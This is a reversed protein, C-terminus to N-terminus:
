LHLGCSKSISQIPIHSPFNFIIGLFRDQAAILISSVNTSVPSVALPATKPFLHFASTRKLYLNGGNDSLLTNWHFRLLDFQDLTYYASLNKNVSHLHYM